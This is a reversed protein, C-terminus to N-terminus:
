GPAAFQDTAGNFVVLPINISTDYQGSQELLQKAKALDYTPVNQLQSPPVYYPLGPIIVGAYSSGFDIGYKVNGLVEDVYNTYNFADAFAERVDLNAFYGSPIHYQPGFDAIMNTVNIDVNFKFVFEALSPSQYIAAKGVAVQKLMLALYESPLGYPPGTVIDAQGSTFLNYATEPDKVWQIVVTNNVVPIGTVGPYGPNSALTISQGPDYSQIMYPGSAVPDWQVKLNFSGLNGQNQYSYFGAPTFTIGAGVDNLWTADLISAVWAAAIATFFLQSVTPKVLKFTV